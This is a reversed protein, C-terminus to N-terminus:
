EHLLLQQLHLLHRNKPQTRHRGDRQNQNKQQPQIKQDLFFSIFPNTFSFFFFLFSFLYFSYYYYYYFRIVKQNQHVRGRSLVNDSKRKLGNTRDQLAVRQQKEQEKGGGFQKEGFKKAEKKEFSKGSPNANEKDRAQKAHRIPHRTAPKRVAAQKMM